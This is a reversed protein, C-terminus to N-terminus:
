RNIENINRSYQDMYYNRVQTPTKSTLIKSLEAFDKKGKSFYENASKRDEISWKKTPFLGKGKNSEFFAKVEEVTRTRVHKSVNEWTYWYMGVGEIMREVEDKRWENISEDAILGAKSSKRIREEAEKRKRINEEAEKIMEELENDSDSDFNLKSTAKGKKKVGSSRSKEVRSLSFDDDLNRKKKRNFVASTNDERLRKSSLTTDLVSKTVEVYMSSFLQNFSMPESLHNHEDAFELFQRLQEDKDTEKQVSRLLEVMMAYHNYANACMELCKKFSSMKKLLSASFPSQMSLM